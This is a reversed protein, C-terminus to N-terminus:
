QKYFSVAECEGKLVKIADKLRQKLTGTVPKAIVWRNDICTTTNKLEDAKLM